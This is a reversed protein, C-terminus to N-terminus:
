DCANAMTRLAAVEAATVTLRWAAKIRAWASAYRCWTHTLPPKWRDPTQDGKSTNVSGRLANLMDPEDLDNAFALRRADDWQWAGSRWADALPVTHDIQFDAASNSAFGSWPDTWLGTNVTCGNPNFTVPEATEQLLVEARTNHCDGDADIWDDGFAARRYPEATYPAAIVLSDVLVLVEGRPAPPRETNIPAPETRVTTSALQQVTASPISALHDRDSTGDPDLANLVGGLALLSVVVVGLQASRPWSKSRHWLRRIM